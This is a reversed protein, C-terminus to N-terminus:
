KGETSIFEGGSALEKAGRPVISLVVRASDPLFTKAAQQANEPTMARYRNLDENFYNPNGTYYYYYNLRDAKYSVYEMQSLFSSEYQNIVRQVERQSPPESKLKNIEEQIVKELETLTHGKRATATIDFTSSLKSSSQSASVDQAIQLEYILKKYLRSNKGGALINAVVDLDADGPAFAKPTLWSIYLRPLQVKDEFALRTEKTLKAEVPSLPPVPKGTPIESFWKEILKKTTEVDIDGAITMTANNPSYYLKFFEIVDEFTAANLDKMSGIVPWHYPHDATYLNEALVIYSMGYPRNEYSQRRENKVVDRQADVKEKTMVDTLFGMRDSDLFLMLELANNPGSEYYNTRDESTSANNDAGSAELWEDFKGLPVNKSGMFMLHEFLHAFGTRGPKESGSGVHFWTNVTITPTSRDVHFLVTLGNPLVIKQYQVSLTAQQAFITGSFVLLLAIFRKM